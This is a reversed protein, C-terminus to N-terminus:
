VLTQKQKKRNNPLLMIKNEYCAIWQNFKQNKAQVNEM